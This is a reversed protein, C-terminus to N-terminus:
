VLVTGIIGFGWVLRVWVAGAAVCLGIKVRIWGGIM